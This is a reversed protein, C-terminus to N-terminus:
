GLGAATSRPLLSDGAARRSSRALGRVLRTLEADLHGNLAGGHDVRRLMALSAVYHDLKARADAGRLQSPSLLALERAKSIKDATFIAVTGPDGHAVRDRLERKRAGYDCISPDDSVSEVLRAVRVGFRHRLEPTTTATKELLDHLLGGAVVEESQGDTDLLRGVEMPHNIFPAGDVERCQGAHRATAFELAARVIASGSDEGSVGGASGQVIVPM